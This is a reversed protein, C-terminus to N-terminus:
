PSRRKSGKLPRPEHAIIVFARCPANSAKKVEAMKPWQWAQVVAPSSPPLWRPPTPAPDTTNFPGDRIPLECAETEADVALKTNQRESALPSSM